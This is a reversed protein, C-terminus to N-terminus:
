IAQDEAIKEERVQTLARGLLNQGRWRAPDSSQTGVGWICDSPSLEVLYTGATDLLEARLVPDNFKHQNAFVVTDYRAAAWAADNYNRVKRGIARMHSPDRTAMIRAHAADDGFMLAKLAMMYQEACCYTTDGVTFDHMYWQSFVGHRDQPGWFGVVAGYRASEEAPTM